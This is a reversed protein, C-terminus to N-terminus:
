SVRGNDPSSVFNLYSHLGVGLQPRRPLLAAAIQGSLRGIVAATPTKRNLVVDIFVSSDGGGKADAHRAVTWDGGSHSVRLFHWLFSSAAGRNARRNKSHSSLLTSRSSLTIQLKSACPRGREDLKRYNRRTINFLLDGSRSLTLRSFVLGIESAAKDGLFAKVAYGLYKGWLRATILLRLRRSTMGYRSTLVVPVEAYTRASKAQYLEEVIIPFSREQLDM